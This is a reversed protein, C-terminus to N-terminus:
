EAQLINVKLLVSIQCKKDGLIFIVDGQLTNKYLKKSLFAEKEVRVISKQFIQGFAKQQFFTMFSM